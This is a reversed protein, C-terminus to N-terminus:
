IIDNIHTDIGPTVINVIFRTPISGCINTVHMNHLGITGHYYIAEKKSTEKWDKDIEDIQRFYEGFPTDYYTKKHEGKIPMSTEDLNTTM